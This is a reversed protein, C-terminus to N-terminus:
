EQEKTAREIIVDTQFRNTIEELTEPKWTENDITRIEPADPSGAGLSVACAYCVKVVVLGEEKCQNVAGDYCRQTFWVPSDCIGCESPMAQEGSPLESYFQYPNRANCILIASDVGDIQHGM